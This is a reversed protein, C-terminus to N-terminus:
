ASVTEAVSYLRMTEAQAGGLHLAAGQRIEDLHRHADMGNMFPTGCASCRVGSGGDGFTALEITAGEHMRAKKFTQEVHEGVRHTFLATFTCASCKVVVKKLYHDYALQRPLSMTWTGYVNDWLRIREPGDTRSQYAGASDALREYEAESVERGRDNPDNPNIVRRM